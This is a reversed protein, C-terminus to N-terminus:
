YEPATKVDWGLAALVDEESPGEEGIGMLGYAEESKDHLYTFDLALEQLHAPKPVSPDFYEGPITIDTHYQGFYVRENFPAMERLARTRIPDPLTCSSDRETLRTGPLAGSSARHITRMAFVLAFDVLRDAPEIKALAPHKPIETELRARTMHGVSNMSFAIGGPIRHDHWWRHDGQAGFFNVGVRWIRHENLDPRNIALPLSDLLITDTKVSEDSLYIGCLRLALDRLTPGPRANAVASSILSIVFAHQKGLLGNKQWVRRSLHIIDRVHDEGKHLDPETLICYAVQSKSAM